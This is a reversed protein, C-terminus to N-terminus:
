GSALELLEPRRGSSQFQIWSKKGPNGRFGGRVGFFLHGGRPFGVPTDLGSESRNHCILRFLITCINMVSKIIAAELGVVWDEAELGKRVWHEEWGEVLGVVV